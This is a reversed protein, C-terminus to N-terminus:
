WTPSSITSENSYESALSSSQIPSYGGSVGVLWSPPIAFSLHSHVQPVCFQLPNTSAPVRRNMVVLMLGPVYRAYRARLPGEGGKWPIMRLAVMSTLVLQVVCAGTAAGVGDGVGDGVGAGVGDGVGDGVGPCCGAVALM